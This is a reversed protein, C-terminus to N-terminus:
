WRGRQTQKRVVARSQRDAARVRLPARKNEIQKVAHFKSNFTGAMLRWTSVEDM